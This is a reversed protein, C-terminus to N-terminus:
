QGPQILVGAEAGPWVTPGHGGKAAEYLSCDVGIAALRECFAAEAQARLREVEAQAAAAAKDAEAKALQNEAELQNLERERAKQARQLEAEAEENQINTYRDTLEGRQPLAKKILVEFPACDESGSKWTVGCLYNDGLARNVEEVVAVGMQDQMVAWTSQGDAVDGKVVVNRWVDEWNFRQSQQRMTSELIPKLNQDLFARWGEPTDIVRGEGKGHQEWLECGKDVNIRFRVSLDYNMEVGDASVAEVSAPSDANPNGAEMLYNRVDANLYVVNDFVGTMDRGDEPHYVEGKQDKSEFPGGGYACAFQNEETNVYSCSAGMLALLVAFIIFNKRNKM